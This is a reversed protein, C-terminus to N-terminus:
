YRYRKRLKYQLFDRFLPHIRYEEKDDDLLSIFINRGRLDSLLDLCCTEPFIQQCFRLYDGKLLSLHLLLQQM